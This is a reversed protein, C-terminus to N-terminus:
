RDDKHIDKDTYMQTDKETQRHRERERERERERKDNLNGERLM